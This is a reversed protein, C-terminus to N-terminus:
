RLDDALLEIFKFNLEHVITESNDNREILLLIKTLFNPMKM